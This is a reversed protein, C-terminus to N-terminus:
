RRDTSSIALEPIGLFPHVGQSQVSLCTLLHSPLVRGTMAWIPPQCLRGKKGPPVPSQDHLLLLRGEQSCGHRTTPHPYVVLIFILVFEYLIRCGRWVPM